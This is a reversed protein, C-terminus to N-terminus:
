AQLLHGMKWNLKLKPAAVHSAGQENASQERTVLCAAPCKFPSFFHCHILAFDFSEKANKDSSAHERENKQSWSGWPSVESEDADKRAEPPDTRQVRDESERSAAM